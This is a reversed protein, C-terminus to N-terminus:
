TGIMMINSLTPVDFPYTCLIVADAENVLKRRTEPDKRLEDPASIIELDERKNLRDYVQIGTTGAEGDIFVKPKASLAGTSASRLAPQRAVFASTPLLSALLVASTIRMMM